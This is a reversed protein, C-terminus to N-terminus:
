ESPSNGLIPPIAIDMASSSVPDTQRSVKGTEPTKSVRILGSWGCSMCRFKRCDLQKSIRHELSNRPSRTLSRSKCRLCVRDTSLLSRLTWLYYLVSAVSSLILILLLFKM